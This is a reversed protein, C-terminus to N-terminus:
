AEGRAALLADAFDLAQRAIIQPRTIGNAHEGFWRVMQWSPAEGTCISPNAMAQGAYWDRLTMGEQVVAMDHHTATPFAPPNETKDM